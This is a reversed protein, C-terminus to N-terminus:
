WYIDYIVQVGLRAAADGDRGPRHLWLSGCYLPAHRQRHMDLNCAALPSHGGNDKRHAATSESCDTAVIGAAGLMLMLLAFSAGGLRPPTVLTWPGPLASTRWNGPFVSSLCRADGMASAASLSQGMILGTGKADRENTQTATRRALGM